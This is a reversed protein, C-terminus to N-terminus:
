ELINHMTSEWYPDKLNYEWLFVGGINKTSVIKCLERCDDNMNNIGCMGMVIMDAPYGNQICQNFADYTYSMYFQGNFYDIYKGVDSKFLDKYVFGGMGPEDNQLAYQVPAMSITFHPLDTKIQLILKKVNEIDVIEEIDLDIGTILPQTLIFSHLLKYYTDYDKFLTTFAGGAGGVMLVIRIGLEHAIQLEDWLNNFSPDSPKNNNLHIYPTNNQELGFHISSVHIHTVPTSEYLIDELGSFTQYYYIIKKTM